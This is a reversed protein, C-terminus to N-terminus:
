IVFIVHNGENAVRLDLGGYEGRGVLGKSEEHSCDVRADGVVLELEFFLFDFDSHHVLEM